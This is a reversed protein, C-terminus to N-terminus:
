DVIGINFRIVEPFTEGRMLGLLVEIAKYAMGYPDQEITFLLTGEEVAARADDTADFGTILIDVGPTRGAAFAAEIAGLAMEDNMAVIVEVDPHAVLLNEAVEMGDVRNFYGTQSALIELRDGAVSMFGELRDIGSGAGPTGELIVVRTGDEVVSMFYEAKAIGAEVNDTGIWVNVDAGIVRRNVAVVPIGADMVDQVVPAVAESDVPMVLLASMGAAKLDEIDSTNKVSDNLNDVILVNAGFDDIATQIGEYMAIVFPLEMTALSVGILGLDYNSVEDGVPEDAPEDAPEDEPEDEVAAPAPDPDDTGCGVVATMAFALVFVLLMAILRRKKM